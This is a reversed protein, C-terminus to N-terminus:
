DAKHQYIIIANIYIHTNILSRQKSIKLNILKSSIPNKLNFILYCLKILPIYIVQLGKTYLNLIKYNLNSM